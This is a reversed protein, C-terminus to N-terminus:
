RCRRVIGRLAAGITSEPLQTTELIEVCDDEAGFVIQRQARYPKAGGPGSAPLIGTPRTADNENPNWGTM